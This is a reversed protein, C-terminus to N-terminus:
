PANLRAVTVVERQELPQEPVPAERDPRARTASPPTRDGDQRGLLRRVLSQVDMLLSMLTPTLLLTFITSLVLGGVLVAGLGRYLESGAGAFLVLPALGAVTTTVSMFIPRVRTQTSRAIAQNRDMGQSRFNLAQHVILIPNNVITGILIVFGLMTLVNLVYQSDYAHLIALGLFGGVMAFPVSMIVVLPYIFNEFLSALLLYTVLAALVFGPRFSILFDRLKDAAGSPNLRVSPPLVGAARLPGEVQTAIVQEAEQTTMGPPLQVNFLVAPMEEVRNIQQPATTAILDVV